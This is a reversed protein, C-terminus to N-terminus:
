QLVDASAQPHFDALGADLQDVLDGAPFTM